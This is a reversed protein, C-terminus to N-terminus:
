NAQRQPTPFQQAQNPQGKNAGQEILQAAETALAMLLENTAQPEVQEDVGQRLFAEIKSRMVLGADVFPNTGQRYAGISLLDENEELAGILRRLLTTAQQQETSTISTMLRSISESLDIAPYQGRAAIKRSLWLHGDLLGRM